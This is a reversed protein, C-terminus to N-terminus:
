KAFKVFLKLNVYTRVYTKNAIKGEEVPICTAWRFLIAMKEFHAFGM